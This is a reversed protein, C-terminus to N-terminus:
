ALDSITIHLNRPKLFTVTPPKSVRFPSLQPETAEGQVIGVKSFSRFKPSTRRVYNRDKQRVRQLSPCLTKRRKEGRKGRSEQSLRAESCVTSANMDLFFSEPVFDIKPRLKAGLSRNSATKSVPIHRLDFNVFRYASRRTGEETNIGLSAKATQQAESKGTRGSLSNAERTSKIPSTKPQFALVTSFLKCSIARYAVPPSMNSM